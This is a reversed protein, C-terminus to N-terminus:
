KKGGLKSLRNLNNKAMEIIDDNNNTKLRKCLGESYHNLDYNIDNNTIEHCAILETNFYIYLKNASSTLTVKKGIYKSPLNAWFYM